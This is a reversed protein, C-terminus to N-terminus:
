TSDCIYCRLPNGDADVRNSGLRAGGRSNVTSDEKQFERQRHQFSGRGCSDRGRGRGKDFRGRNVVSKHETQFVLEQKIAPAATDDEGAPDGFIKLITTKMDTYTLKKCTARALKENEQSVNAASLLFFALVGDLKQYLQDFEVVFDTISVGSMRRYSYFKKFAIYARTDSDKLVIKDLQEIISKVGTQRNRLEM